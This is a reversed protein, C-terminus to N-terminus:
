TASLKREMISIQFAEDVLTDYSKAMKELTQRIDPDSAAAALKRVESARRAYYERQESTPM